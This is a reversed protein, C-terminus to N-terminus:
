LPEHLLPFIVFNNNGFPLWFAKRYIDEKHLAATLMKVSNLTMLYTFYKMSDDPEQFFSKLWGKKVIICTIDDENMMNVTGVDGNM